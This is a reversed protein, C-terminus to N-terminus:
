AWPWDGAVARSAFGRLAEATDGEIGGDDGLTLPDIDLITGTITAAALYTGAVSPHVGDDQYLMIDPREALSWWWAAGVPAVEAGLADGFNLYTEAIASQMSEFSAFGIGPSGGLHGWTMYLVIDAGNGVALTSLQLAAPYSETRAVNAVAPAMSQEQLVVFDWGESILDTTEASAAHDRLWAGGPAIMGVEVDRDVSGALDRVVDPLGNTATHSNGIFLVRVTPTSPGGCAISTLCLAVVLFVRVRSSSRHSM